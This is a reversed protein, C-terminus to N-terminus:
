IDYFSDSDLQTINFSALEPGGASDQRIIVNINETPLGGSNQIRITIGRKAEIGIVNDAKGQRSQVQLNQQM